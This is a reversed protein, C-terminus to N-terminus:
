NFTDFHQFQRLYLMLQLTMPFSLSITAIQAALSRVGPIHDTIAFCTVFEGIWIIKACVNSLLAHLIYLDFALRSYLYM